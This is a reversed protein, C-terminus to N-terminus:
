DSESLNVSSGGGHSDGSRVAHAAAQVGHSMQQSRKMRKAWAPPGDSTSSAAGPSAAEATATTAAGSAGTAIETAAQGGAQYSQKLSDAARGAARKLPSVAAKAGTSAVSGLGSAVGSAGAQGAAGLSYATSAG